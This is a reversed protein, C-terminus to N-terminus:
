TGASQAPVPAPQAGGAPSGARGAGRLLILGYALLLVDGGVMTTWHAWAPLADVRLLLDTLLHLIM